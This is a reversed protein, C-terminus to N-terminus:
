CGNGAVFVEATIPVHNYTPPLLLAVKWLHPCRSQVGQFTHMM